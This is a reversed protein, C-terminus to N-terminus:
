AGSRRGGFVHVIARLVITLVLWAPIFFICFMVFWVGGPSVGAPAPLRAISAVALVTLTVHSLVSMRAWNSKPGAFHAVCRSVLLPAMFVVIGVVM